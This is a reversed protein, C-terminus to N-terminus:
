FSIAILLLPDLPPRVRRAGGRIKPLSFKKKRSEADKSSIRTLIRRPTEQRRQDWLFFFYIFLYIFDCLINYKLGKGLLGVHVSKKGFKSCVNGEHVLDMTVFQTDIQELTEIKCPPTLIEM